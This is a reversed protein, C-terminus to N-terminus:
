RKCRREELDRRLGDAIRSLVGRQSASLDESENKGYVDVLGLMALDPFYLYILRLGGRKGKGRRSDHWRIKRLGGCGRMVSGATPNQLLHDQFARYSEDDEFYEPLAATFGHTEVFVLDM